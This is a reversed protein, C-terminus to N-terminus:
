ETMRPTRPRTPSAGGALMQCGLHSSSSHSPQPRNPNVPPSTASPGRVPSNGGRLEAMYEERIEQQLLAEEDRRSRDLAAGRELEQFLSAEEARAQRAINEREARQETMEGWRAATDRDM